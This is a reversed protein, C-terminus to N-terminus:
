GHNAEGAMHKEYAKKIALAIMRVPSYGPNSLFIPPIGEVAERIESEPAEIEVILKM